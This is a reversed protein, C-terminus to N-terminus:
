VQHQQRAHSDPRHHHVAAAGLDVGPERAQADLGLELVAQAHCIGVRHVHHLHHQAAAHVLGEDREDLLRAAVCDPQTPLVAVDDQRALHDLSVNPKDALDRADVRLEDLDARARRGKRETQQQNHKRQTSQTHSPM